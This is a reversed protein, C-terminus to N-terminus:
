RRKSSKRILSLLARRYWRHIVLLCSAIPSFPDSEQREFHHCLKLLTEDQQLRDFLDGRFFFLSSEQRVLLLSPLKDEVRSPFPLPETPSIPLPKGKVVRRAEVIKEFQDYLMGGRDKRIDSFYSSHQRIYREAGSLTTKNFHKDHLIWVVEFGLAHYDIIRGKVEALSIPSCQVEFVIKRPFWVVDAIREGKSFRHEM